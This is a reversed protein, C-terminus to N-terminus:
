QRRELEQLFDEPKSFYLNERLIGGVITFPHTKPLLTTPVTAVVFAM